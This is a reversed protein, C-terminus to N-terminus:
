IYKFDPYVDYYIVHKLFFEDFAFHTIIRGWGFKHNNVPQNWVTIKDNDDFCYPNNSKERNKCIVIFGKIVDVMNYNFKYPNAIILGGSITSFNYALIYPSNCILIDGFTRTALKYNYEKQDNTHIWDWKMDIDAVFVKKYLKNTIDMFRWLMGPQAGISESKMLFINLFTYKSFEPIYNSLNNALYLNVCIHDLNYNNFNNLNNILSDYYKTTWKDNNVSYENDYTNDGNKKFFCISICTDKISNIYKKEIEFWNDYDNTLNDLCQQINIQKYRRSIHEHSVNNVEVNNRCNDWEFRGDINTYEYQPFFQLKNPIWEDNIAALDCELINGNYKINRASHIWSGKCYQENNNMAIYM